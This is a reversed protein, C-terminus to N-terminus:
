IIALKTLFSICDPGAVFGGDTYRASKRIWICTVRKMRAFAALSKIVVFAGSLEFLPMIWCSFKIEM